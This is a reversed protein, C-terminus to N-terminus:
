EEVKNLEAQVADLLKDLNHHTVASVPIVMIKMKKFRGVAEKLGKEDLLETKTLVLLQRKRSLKDSFDKLEQNIVKYSAVMDSNEVSILHLILKTREIHKLFKDGLGKGKSAGEILGPIDAVILKNDQMNVVGLNPELTTFPYDAIRPRANSIVSLLTSKGANPLGVLGVDAIMKLELRIEAEGGPLGEKAWQPAQKVSTAFHHNGFGGSGGKAALYDQDPRGFDAVLNEGLYIQAGIPLDLILDTGNKGHALKKKGNEGDEAAFITQGVFARLDHIHPNSRFIVNGGRGGDGGDPGGKPVYKERRFYVGGDGGRGALVKIKAEDIIM